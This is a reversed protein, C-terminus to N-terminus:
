SFCNIEFKFVKAGVCDELKLNPNPSFDVVTGSARVEDDDEEPLVHRSDVVDVAVDVEKTFVVGTNPLEAM